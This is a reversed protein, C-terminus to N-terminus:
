AAPFRGQGDYGMALGALATTTRRSLERGIVLVRQEQGDGPGAPRRKEFVRRTKLCQRAIDGARTRWSFLPTREGCVVTSRMPPWRYLQLASM